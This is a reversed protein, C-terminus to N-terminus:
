AARRRQSRLDGRVLVAFVTAAALALAAWLAFAVVDARTMIVRSVLIEDGLRVEYVEVPRRRREDLAAVAAWGVEGVTRAERQTKELAAHRTRSEALQGADVGLSVRRSRSLTEVLRATREWVHPRYQYAVPDRKLRIAVWPDALRLKTSWGARDYGATASDSVGRVVELDPALLAPLRSAAMILAALIIFGLLYGIFHGASWTEGDDPDFDPDPDDLAEIHGDLLPAHTRSSGAELLNRVRRATRRVTNLGM